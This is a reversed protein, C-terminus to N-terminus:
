KSRKNMANIIVTGIGSKLQRQFDIQQQQQPTMRQAVLDPRTDLLAEEDKIRNDLNALMVAVKDSIPPVEPVEKQKSRGRRPDYYSKKNENRTLYAMVNKNYYDQTIDDPIEKVKDAGYELDDITFDKMGKEKTM